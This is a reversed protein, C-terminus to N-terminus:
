SPAAQDMINVVIAPDEYHRRFKSCIDRILYFYFRIKFFLYTGLRHEQRKKEWSVPHYSAYSTPNSPRRGEWRDNRFLILAVCSTGALEESKKVLLKWCCILFLGEELLVYSRAVHNPWQDTLWDTSHSATRPEPMRSSPNLTTLMLGEEKTVGQVLLCLLVEYTVSQLLWLRCDPRLIETFSSSLPPQQSPGEPFPAQKWSQYGANTEPGGM